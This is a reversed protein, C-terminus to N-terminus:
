PDGKGAALARILRGVNPKEAKQEQQRQATLIKEIWKQQDDSQQQLVDKLKEGIVDDVLKILEEKTM